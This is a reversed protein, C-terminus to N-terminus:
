LLIFWLNVMSCLLQTMPAIYGTMPSMMFFSYCVCLLNQSACFCASRQQALDSSEWVPVVIWAFNSIVLTKKYKSTQIIILWTESMNYVPFDYFTLLLWHQKTMKIKGQSEHNKKICKLEVKLTQQWQSIYIDNVYSSFWGWWSPKLSISQPEQNSITTEGTSCLLTFRFKVQRGSQRKYRCVVKRLRSFGDRCFLPPLWTM